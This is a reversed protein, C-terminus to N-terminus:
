RNSRVFRVASCLSGTEDYLAVFVNEEDISTKATLRMGYYAPTRYEVHIRGIEFGEPLYELAMKVYECNNVHGNTDIQHKRINIAEATEMNEPLRVRRELKDMGLAAEISYGRIEEDTPKVPRGSVTDVYAWLSNAQVYAKGEGSAIVFNRYGLFGKFETPWTMIELESGLEPLENICIDWATLLWARGLKKLGEVGLGIYESQFTSCDQMYNIASSISLRGDSGVESYRVRSGFKYM